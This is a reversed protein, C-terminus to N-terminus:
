LSKVGSLFNAVEAGLIGSQDALDRSATLMEAATSGTLAAADRVGVISTTVEATGRAAEQVSRAIESTAAGQEEVAAAISGSIGAMENITRGIADIATVTEGTLSQIEAIQAEIDGTARATQSALSKVESAVVAFGKGAEGARAAEITANLALLNTQSAINTILQVVEGIKQASEALRKVTGSTTQSQGIAQQAFNTSHGVQTTIERISASLEETASAVTQVNSSAQGAAAAVTSAERKTQDASGAMATATTEFGRAAESLSRTVTGIQSEFGRVLGELRRGREEKARAEAIEAAAREDAIRMNDKFVQVAKAMAGLEDARDIGPVAVALNKAALASMAGTLATIPGSMGNGVARAVLMVLALAVLGAASGYIVQDREMAAADQLAEQRMRAARDALDLALQWEQQRTPYYTQQYYTLAANRDTKILELVHDELPNLTQDDFTALRTLAAGLEPFHQTKDKLTAITASFMDDMTKKATREADSSPDILSGRMANSMGMMALKLSEAGSSVEDTAIIKSRIASDSTALTAILGAAALGVLLTIAGFAGYLKQRIGLSTLFRTM